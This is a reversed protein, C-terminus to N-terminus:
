NQFNGMQNVLTGQVRGAKSTIVKSRSLFQNVVVVVGAAVAVAVAVVVVVILIMLM